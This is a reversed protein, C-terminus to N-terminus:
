ICHISINTNILVPLILLTWLCIFSSCNLPGFVPGDCFLYCLPVVKKLCLVLFFPTLLPNLFFFCLTVVKTFCKTPRFPNVSFLKFNFDKVDYTKKSPLNSLELPFSYHYSPLVKDVFISLLLLRAFASYM